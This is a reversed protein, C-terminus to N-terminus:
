LNFVVKHPRICPQHGFRALCHSIKRDDKRRTLNRLTISSFFDTQFSSTRFLLIRWDTSSSITPSLRFHLNFPEIYNTAANYYLAILIFLLLCESGIRHFRSPPPKRRKQRMKRVSFTVRFQRYHSTVFLYDDIVHLTTWARNM